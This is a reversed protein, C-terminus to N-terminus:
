TKKLFDECEKIIRDIHKFVRLYDTQNQEWGNVNSRLIDLNTRPNRSNFQEILANLGEVESIVSYLGYMESPPNSAYNYGGLLQKEELFWEACLITDILLSTNITPLNLGYEKDTFRLSSLQKSTKDFLQKFLNLTARLKQIDSKRRIYDSFLNLM